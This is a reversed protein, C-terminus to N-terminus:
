TRRGALFNTIAVDYPTKTNMSVYDIEMRGCEAQLTQVFQQIRELYAARIANPDLQAQIGLDELDRFNTWRDYPFTLEEDAMIHLLIVEHKRYRFHYLAKVIEAVDGFMDSAIIVLGRRPVRDAIEHFIAAPDTEAAAETKNLEELIIRVQSARSRPPIYRRIATDFTVLGVADQQRILMYSLAAAIHQAYVFKSAPTGAIHAAERGSFGMSGSADVLITARLNTEEIYQKIYYRDAKGYIRWDINKPDDGPTYQRHEAFEVSFGKYPSKHRGTVFGEVAGRATFDLKGLRALTSAPLLRMHEPPKVSIAAM